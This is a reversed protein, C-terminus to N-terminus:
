GITNHKLTPMILTGEEVVEQTPISIITQYSERIDKNLLKPTATLLLEITHSFDNSVSQEDHTLEIMAEKTNEGISRHAEDRVICRILNTFQKYLKKDRKRVSLLAQYSMIVIPNHISEQTITEM